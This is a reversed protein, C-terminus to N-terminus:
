SEKDSLNQDSLEEVGKLFVGEFEPAATADVDEVNSANMKKEKSLKEKQRAVLEDENDIPNFRSLLNIGDQGVGLLLEDEYVRVMILSNKQDVHVKSIVRIIDDSKLGGYKMSLQKLFYLFLLLLGIVFLTALLFKLWESGLLSQGSDQKKNLDINKSNKFDKFTVKYKEPKKYEDLTLPKNKEENVLEKKPLVNINGGESSKNVVASKNSEESLVPEAFVPL